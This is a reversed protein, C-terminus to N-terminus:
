SGTLFSSQSLNQDIQDRQMKDVWKQWGAAPLFVRWATLSEGRWVIKEEVTVLAGLKVYKKLFIPSTVHAVAGRAGHRYCSLAAAIAARYSDRNGLTNLFAVQCRSKDLHPCDAVRDGCYFNGALWQLASQLTVGAVDFDPATNL